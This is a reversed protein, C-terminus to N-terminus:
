TARKWTSTEVPAKELSWHQHQSDYLRLQPGVARFCVLGPCRGPDRVNPISIWDIASFAMTVFVLGIAVPARAQMRNTIEIDGSSDQKISSGVFYKALLAWLGLYFVARITWFTPNLYGAKGLLLQDDGPHVWEYM